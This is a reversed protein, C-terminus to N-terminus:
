ISTRVIQGQKASERAAEFIAMVRRTQDPPALLTAQEQAALAFNEYFDGWRGALTPITREGNSGKLKGFTDPHEQASTIDGKMLAAEQPDLGFKQFTAKTGRAYFRPKDIATMSSTDCVATAGNQFELVLFAESEVESQPYDHHLRLYVGTVPSPQLLLTQDILHAGLDLFKGGGQERTGRWGGWPGFGGWAMELWRLDGLEGQALLQQLTLFDGDLRRNQFTTLLKGSQHAREIMADCEELSLCMPKDTVVHKGAGLSRMTYDFHTDNPTALVVADVTEDALVEELGEYAQVGLESEIQARKEPNSSSIGALELGSVKQILAAHCFRGWRGFGIIAVRTTKMSFRAQRAM